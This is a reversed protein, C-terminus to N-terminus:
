DVKWPGWTQRVPDYVSRYILSGGECEATHGMAGHHGALRCADSCPSYHEAQVTLESDTGRALWEDVAAALTKEDRGWTKSEIHYGLYTTGEPVTPPLPVFFSRTVPAAVRPSRAPTHMVEALM